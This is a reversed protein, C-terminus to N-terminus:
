YIISTVYYGHVCCHLGVIYQIPETGTNYSLVSWHLSNTVTLSETHTHTNTHTYTTLSTIYRTFLVKIVVSVGCM